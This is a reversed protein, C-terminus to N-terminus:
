GSLTGCPVCATSHAPRQARDHRAHREALRDAYRQPTGCVGPRASVRGRLGHTATPSLGFSPLIRGQQRGLLRVGPYRTLARGGRGPPISPMGGAVRAPRARRRSRPSLAPSRAPEGESPGGSHHRERIRGNYFMQELRALPRSKKTPLHLPPSLPPSSLARCIGEDAGNQTRRGSATM